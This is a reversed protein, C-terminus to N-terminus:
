PLPPTTSCVVHVPVLQMSSLQHVVPGSGVAAYWTCATATSAFPADVVEAGIMMLLSAVDGTMGEPAGAVFQLGPPPPSVVGGVTASVAGAGPALRVPLTVTLAFALSLTPTAPT